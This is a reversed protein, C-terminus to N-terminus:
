KSFQTIAIIITAFIVFIFTNQYLDKKLYVKLQGKKFGNIGWRIVAGPFSLVYVVILEFIFEM